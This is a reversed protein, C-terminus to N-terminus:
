DITEEIRKFFKKGSEEGGHLSSTRMICILILEDVVIQLYKKSVKM